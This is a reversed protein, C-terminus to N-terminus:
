KGPPFGITGRASGRCFLPSPLYIAPVVGFDENFALSLFVSSFLSDFRNVPLVFILTSCADLVVEFWLRSVASFVLSGFVVPVM